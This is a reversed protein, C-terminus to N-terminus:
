GHRIIQMFSECDLSAGGVLAGDINPQALLEQANDPKVSGGYQIRTAQAVSDGFHNVLLGRIHAHIQEAQQPTAVKGTGIAWIPEYAITISAMQQTTINALSGVLQGGVIDNTQGSERQELTEGVCLIVHLGHTLAAKVKENVLQDTEAFLERRESHGLIVVSCGLDCLMPGSIEGTFAGADNANLTQAGLKVTSEGLATGVSDLYGFSPCIAIDIDNTQSVADAISAGLETAQQKTLNMKWNGAIFTKRM